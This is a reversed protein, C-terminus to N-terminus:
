HFDAQLWAPVYRQHKNLVTAVTAKSEALLAGARRAVDRDTKNSEIVMLIMDMFRAVKSTITTQAVPPMDFIIFDYDSAKFRPVFQSFQRPVLKQLEHDVSNASVVYLNDHVLANTRTKDGLAEELSPAPKGHSFAYAAGREGRMNVLLVNGDGTESLSAALGKAVTTVGAGEGCSTVAIMKPKHTMQRIDFYSVLRDRLAEHYAEFGNREAPLLDGSDPPEGAPEGPSRDVPSKGNRGGSLSKSLRLRPISLFLPLHLQTEIEKPRKLTRDLFLELLFAIGIGAGLGGALAVAMMKYLKMYDRFPPSPAQVRSINASKGAGLDKDFSTQQLGREVYLYATELQNRKRQLDLIASEAEDLRGAEARVSALQNSLVQAKAELSLIWTNHGALDAGATSNPIASPITVTRLLDPHLAELETKRRRAEALQLNNTRAQPNELTVMSLLEQERRSFYEEQAVVRRYEDIKGQPAAAAAGSGNTTSNNTPEM